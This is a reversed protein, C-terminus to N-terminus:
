YPTTDCVRVRGLYNGHRDYQDVWACKAEVHVPVSGAFTAGAMVGAGIGVGFARSWRRQAAAEDATAVLGAAITVAALASIALTKRM